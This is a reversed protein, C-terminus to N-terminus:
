YEGMKKIVHAFADDYSPAFTEVTLSKAICEFTTEKLAILFHRLDDRSSWSEDYRDRWIRRASKEMQGDVDSVWPSDTIELICSGFNGLGTHYLPHEPLGEDNPYGLKSSVCGDCRVVAVGLDDFEYSM